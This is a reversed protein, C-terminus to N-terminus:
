CKPPDYKDIAHDFANINKPAARYAKLWIEQANPLHYLKNRQMAALHAAWDKMGAAGAPLVPQQDGSRTACKALAAAIKEPAKSVKGCSAGQRDEYTKLADHYRKQDGPGKLRTAKFQATMQEITYNGLDAQRQADVHLAWHEIGTKAEAIVEDAAEVKAQCADLAQQAKVAAPDPTPTPTESPTPSPSASSPAATSETAAVSPSTRPGASLWERPMYKWAAFLGGGLLVVAIVIPVVFRWM